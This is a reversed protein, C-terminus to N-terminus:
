SNQPHSFSSSKRIPDNDTEADNNEIDHNSTVSCNNQQSKLSKLCDFSLSSTVVSTLPTM